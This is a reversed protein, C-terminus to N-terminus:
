VVMVFLMPTPPLLLLLLLLSHLPLVQRQPVVTIILQLSQIHEPPLILPQLIREEAQHGPIPIHRHGVQQQMLLPLEQEAMAHPM